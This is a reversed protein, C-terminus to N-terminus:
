RDGCMAYQCLMRVRANSVCTAECWIGNEGHTYIQKEEESKRNRKKEEGRMSEVSVSVDMAFRFVLVSDQATSMSGEGGRMSGVARLVM